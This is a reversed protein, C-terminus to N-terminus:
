NKELKYLYSAATKAEVQYNHAALFKHVSDSRIERIATFSEILLFEPSLKEWDNSKLVQLEHGEVDINMFTVQSIDFDLSPLLSDLRVVQVRQIGTISAHAFSTQDADRRKAIHPDFTNLAPDSFIFYELEGPIDSVACEINTDKPRQQDFLKMSGPTADINLGRWGSEYFYYTNSYKTPHFAGIDIFTAPTHERLYHRLLMDEGTQSYSRRYACENNLIDSSSM